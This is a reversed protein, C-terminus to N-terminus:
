SQRGSTAGPPAATRQSPRSAFRPCTARAASLDESPRELAVGPPRTTTQYNPINPLM